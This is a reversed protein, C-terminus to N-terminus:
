LDAVRGEKDITSQLEISGQVPAALALPPYVPAIKKQLNAAAVTSDLRIPAATQAEATQRSLRLGDQLWAGTTL